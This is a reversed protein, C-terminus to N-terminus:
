NMEPDTLIAAAVADWDVHEMLVRATIQQVYPPLPVMVPALAEFLCERICDPAPEDRCKKLAARLSDRVKKSTGPNTMLTITDGTFDDTANIM